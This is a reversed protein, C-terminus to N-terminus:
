RFFLRSLRGVPTHRLLRFFWRVGDLVPLKVMQIQRQANLTSRKANFGKQSRDSQFGLSNRRM